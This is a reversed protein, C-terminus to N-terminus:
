SMSCFPLLTEKLGHWQAQTSRGMKYLVIRCLPLTGAATIPLEAGHATVESTLPVFLLLLPFDYINHLNFLPFLPSSSIRPLPLLKFPALYFFLMPSPCTPKRATTISATQLNSSSLSHAPLLLSLKRAALSQLTKCEPGHYLCIKPKVLNVQCCCPPHFSLVLFCPFCKLSAALM